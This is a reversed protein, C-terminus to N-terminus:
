SGGVEFDLKNREVNLIMKSIEGPLVDEKFWLNQKTAKAICYDGVFQLHAISNFEKPRIIKLTGTRVKTIKVFDFDCNPNDVKKAYPCNQVAGCDGSTAQSKIKKLDRLLKWYEPDQQADELNYDEYVYEAFLNHLGGRDAKKRERMIKLAEGEPDYIDVADTM